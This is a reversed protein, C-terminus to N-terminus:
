DTLAASLRQQERQLLAANTRQRELVQDLTKAAQPIPHEAFFSQIDALVEPATLLKVTDVMRVISSNPFRENADDWNRRVQNWALQGQWRNAICRNLLYPANQTRVEGSFALAVTRDMQESTPFESLAYMFRLEEQPTQASRFRQLYEDYDADTGVAAIVNTAAALLEPDTTTSVLERCRQQAAADDGLVALLGVLLGRLKATLDPEGDVPQWGVDALAPAALAAVRRRFALHAEGEVLRGVGRLGIAIAQWVAYDRNGAFGEAFTVFDAASLRGAVVENWADDVLNYRDLVTLDALAAGLLRTRLENDYAVRYYGHGGANVVVTSAASPLDIRLQDSDLLVKSPQGDILLHVPVM